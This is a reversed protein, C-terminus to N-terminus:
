IYYLICVINMCGRESFYGSYCINRWSNHSSILKHINHQSCGVKVCVILTKHFKRLTYLLRFYFTDNLLTLYKGIYPSM